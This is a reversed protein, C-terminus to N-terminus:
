SQGGVSGPWRQWPSQNISLTGGYAPHVVLRHNIAPSFSTSIVAGSQDVSTTLQHTVELVIVAILHPKRKARAQRDLVKQIAAEVEDLGKPGLHFSGIAVIGSHEPNLQGGKTSAAADVLETVLAMADTKLGEPGPARLALPTKVEIELREIIRPVLWLDPVRQKAASHDVLGVGNGADVLMSAIGLTMVTHQVEDPNVISDRLSPWLPHHRWRAFLSVTTLLESLADGDLVLPQGPDQKALMGAAKESYRILEILRHRRMPRTKSKQGRQDSEALARYHRGLLLIAQRGIGRLMRSDLIQKGVPRVPSQGPYNAGTERMYADFASKGAMLVPKSRTDVPSGLLYRGPPALVSRGPLPEGPLRNPLAGLTQCAGCKVFLDLFQREFVDALLVRGCKNCIWNVGPDADGEFAASVPLFITRGHEGAARSLPITTVSM